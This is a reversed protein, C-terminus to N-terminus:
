QAVKGDLQQITKNSPPREKKLRASVTEAQKLVRLLNEGALKKL